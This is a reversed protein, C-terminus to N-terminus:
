GARPNDVHGGARSEDALLGGAGKLHPSYKVIKGRVFGERKGGVGMATELDPIDSLLGESRELKRFMAFRPAGDKQWVTRRDEAQRASLTRHDPDLLRAESALGEDWHSPAFFLVRPM